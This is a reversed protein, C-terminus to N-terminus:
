KFAEGAGAAEPHHSGAGNSAPSNRAAKKAEITERAKTVKRMVGGLEPLLGKAIQKLDRGNVLGRAVIDLAKIEDESLSFSARRVSDRPHRVFDSKGDLCAGDVHLHFPQRCADRHCLTWPRPAKM